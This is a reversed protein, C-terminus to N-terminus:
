RLRGTKTSLPSKPPPHKASAPASASTPTTRSTDGPPTPIRPQTSAPRPRPQITTPTINIHTRSLEQTTPPNHGLCGTGPPSRKQAIGRQTRATKATFCATFDARSSREDKAVVVRAMAATSPPYDQRRPAEGAPHQNAINHVQQQSRSDRSSDSQSPRTWTQSSQLPDKPKRQSEVKCQHLEESRAYKEFLQYLEQLNKPPDRICHSYLVGARLGSVAYHIAIQDDVSPMQSKLTLFKRYYEWLTEKEQQKCLSLEALADTDPRYGQFNLLFKDRLSRWSDISLLPLRTYWTLAPGELAIIFSKAMTADDGGSSAVVVQYSMIYQAPDISGNYKPYTGARFNAPWPSV